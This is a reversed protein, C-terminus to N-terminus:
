REPTSRVAADVVSQFEAVTVRVMGAPAQKSWGYELRQAYPMNNVLYISPGAVFNELAVQAAAITEAGNPDIRDPPKTSAFNLSVDWAGRFRGGVYGKGQRDPYLKALQAKSLRKNYSSRVSRKLGGGKGVNRPDSMLNATIQDVVQNHQSRQLAAEANAAWLEPNGVPSRMVIRKHLELAIVRCVQDLDASTKAIWREIQLTFDGV